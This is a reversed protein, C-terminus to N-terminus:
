IIETIDEKSQRNLLRFADVSLQEDEIVDFFIFYRMQMKWRLSPFGEKLRKGLEPHCKLTVKRNKGQVRYRKFWDELEYM